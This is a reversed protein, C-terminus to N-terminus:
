ISFGTYLTLPLHVNILELHGIWILRDYYYRHEYLNSM